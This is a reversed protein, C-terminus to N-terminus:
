SARENKESPEAMEEIAKQRTQHKLPGRPARTATHAARYAAFPAEDGMLVRGRFAEAHATAEEKSAFVHRRENSTAQVTVQSRAFHAEAADLPRRSREDVVLIRWPQLRSTLLYREACAISCFAVSPGSEAEITVSGVPSLIVGDMACYERDSRWKVGSVVSAAAVLAIIATTFFWAKPIM